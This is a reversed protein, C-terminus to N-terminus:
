EYNAKGLYTLAKTLGETNDGLLGIARNCPSCLLGRVQQTTHDHDVCLNSEPQKDCVACKGSQEQVRRDYEELSMGYLRKLKEARHQRKFKEPNLKRYRKQMVSHCHKCRYDKGDKSGKKSYYDSLPHDIKCMTCRKSLPDRAM